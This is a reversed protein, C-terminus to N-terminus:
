KDLYPRNFEDIKQMLEDQMEKALSPMSPYLDKMEEPDDTLNYFEYGSYYPYQYYILRHEQRMLSISLQKFASFSSAMKADLAYISRNPDDPGGLGPLIQGESWAPPELGALHALTPLLDVSSTYTQIDKREKQGPLSIFLPVRVVPDSLVLTNHGIEGREFLEGHDSTFVVISRDFHGSAELYDILRAIEADWATMYQDYALRHYLIEELPHRARSLPHNPKEPPTWGDDFLGVYNKSPAYPDHPPFFHIYALSPSQMQGLSRIAGDVVNDLLFVGGAIPLGKPYEGLYAKRFNNYRNLTNLRSIMGLFLSGSQGKGNRIINNEFSAFAIRSDKKFVPLSSLRRRELNFEGESYYTDLHKEFQYLFVDAFPNQAYGVNSHTKGFAAFIHHDEHVRTVGGGGLQVARHTWPYLGTLMSATGPVTFSATSYHNHYVYSRAAIREINPMTRRHYGFLRLNRSAWADFVFILVNPTDANLRRDLMSVFPRAALATSAAAILKLLDRRSFKPDNSM